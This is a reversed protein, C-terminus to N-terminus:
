VDTPRWTYFQRQKKKDQQQKKKKEVRFQEAKRWSMKIKIKVAIQQRM